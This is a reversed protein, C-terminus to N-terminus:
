AAEPDLDDTDPALSELWELETQEDDSYPPPDDAYASFAADVAAASRSERNTTSPASRSIYLSQADELTEPFTSLRERAFASLRWEHAKGEGQRECEVLGHATLDELSRRSTTSPHRVATAVQNTDLEDHPELARLCALRLAPISDLAVKTVLDRGRERDCGIADLGALLRDLVIVLRTPAEADPVLEIDRSYGDREVASRGKM